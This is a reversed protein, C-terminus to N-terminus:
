GGGRQYVRSFGALFQAIEESSNNSFVFDVHLVPLILSAIKREQESGPKIIIKGNGYSFLIQDNAVQYELDKLAIPLLRYFEKLSISMEREYHQIM